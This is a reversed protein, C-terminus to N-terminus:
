ESWLLEDRRKGVASLQKYCYKLPEVVKLFLEERWKDLKGDSEGSGPM